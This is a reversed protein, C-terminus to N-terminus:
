GTVDSLEYPSSVLLGRVEIALLKMDLNIIVLSRDLISMITSRISISPPRRSVVYIIYLLLRPPSPIPHDYICTVTNYRVNASARYNLM